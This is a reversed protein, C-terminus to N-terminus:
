IELTKRAHSALERTKRAKVGTAKGHLNEVSDPEQSNVQRGVMEALVYSVVKEIKIRGLPKRTAAGDIVPLQKLDHDRMTAIAATMQEDAEMAVPHMVMIETVPLDSDPDALPAKELASLLDSRTIIGQRSCLM